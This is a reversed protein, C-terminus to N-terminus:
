HADLSASEKSDPMVLLAMRARDSWWSDFTKRDVRVLGLAPDHVVVGAKDSGVVVVWHNHKPLMGAAVREVLSGDMGLEGLEGLVPRRLLVIVPRGHELNSDLNALESQYPYAKLGMSRAAAALEDASHAPHDASPGLSEHLKRNSVPRDWYAAVSALCAPGCAVDPGQLIPAVGRVYVTDEHLTMGRYRTASNACGGALLAGAGMVAALCVWSWWRM